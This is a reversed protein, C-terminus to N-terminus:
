FHKESVSKDHDYVQEKTLKGEKSWYRNLGHRKGHEFNTEVSQQGNDYFEKVAGHLHGEVFPYQGKVAGNPHKQTATGTFKYGKCYAVEGDKWELESFVAEKPSKGCSVLIIALSAFLFQKM